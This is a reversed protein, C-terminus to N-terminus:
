KPGSERDKALADAHIRIGERLLRIIEDAQERTPMEQLVARLTADLDALIGNSV